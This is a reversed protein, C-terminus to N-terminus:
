EYELLDLSIEDSQIYNLFTVETEIAEKLLEMQDYSVKMKPGRTRQSKGEQEKEKIIGDLTKAKTSDRVTRPTLPEAGLSDASQTRRPKKAVV